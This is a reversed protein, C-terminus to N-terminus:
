LTELECMLRTFMELGEPGMELIDSGQVTIDHGAPTTGVVVKLEPNLKAEQEVDAWERIGGESLGAVAHVAREIARAQEAALGQFPGRWVSSDGIQTADIIQFPIEYQQKHVSFRLRYQGGPKPADHAQIMAGSASLNVVVVPYEGDDGEVTGMLSVDARVHRRRDAETSM